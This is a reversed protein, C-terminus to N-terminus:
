KKTTVTRTKSWASYINAPKKNVKVTKYTRIRVYYKKKAKLKKLTTSVTSNKKITVTKASKFKSSTSYQIQYGTTQSAQKKWKVTFGKSVPTVKLSATNKPLITFTKSLSSAYNKKFTVKVTYTGVNKRGSAYSVVYNNSSIKKGTSDTVTVSPKRVKGNYTYTLSTKSALKVDGIKPIMTTNSVDGCVSCKTEIKGSKSVTAATVRAKYVHGRAPIVTQAKLVKGCVTCHSGATKGDSTCAAAVAPDVSEIHNVNFSVTGKRGATDQATIQTSGCTNAVVNGNSDVSAVRIDSSNWSVPSMVVLGATSLTNGWYDTIKMGTTLKLQVHDGRKGSSIGSIVYNNNLFNNNVELIQICDAIGTGQTEDLGTYSSFEGVTTNYYQSIESCFTGMGIYLNKPDIMQTYHGTVANANQNVWDGKEGYWQNIGSVMTEGWNWAIVEGWSQVSRPSQIAFCSNGNTRVHDMTLSAEAARIRAIYELDSSWKIPKYDDLTLPEGTSPNKVGEQCAERRIENIRQLAQPIQVIYKGEIGLLTCGSSPSAVDTPIITAAFVRGCGLWLMVFLILFKAKKKM